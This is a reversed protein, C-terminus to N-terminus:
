MGRVEYECNIAIFNSRLLLTLVGLPLKSFRSSGVLPLFCNVVRPVMLQVVEYIRIAYAQLCLALSTEESFVKQDTMFAWCQEELEPVGLFQASLYLSIVNYRAVFCSVGMTISESVM